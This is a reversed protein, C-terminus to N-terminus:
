SVLDIVASPSVLPTVKITRRRDMYALAGLHRDTPDIDHLSWAAAAEKDNGISILRPPEDARFNVCFRDFSEFVGQGIAKVYAEKRTWCRFFAVCQQAPALSKLEELEESGFFREAIAMMEAIPRMVETDVGIECDLAFGIVLVEGSHSLNFKLRTPMDVGPKGRDSSGLRVDAAAVGLYRGILHRLIGRGLLYSHRLHDFRYRQGKEIEEASLVRSLAQIIPDSATLEVTWVEVATDTLQFFGSV